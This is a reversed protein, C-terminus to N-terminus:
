GISWGMVDFMKASEIRSGRSYIIAWPASSKIFGAFTVIFGTRGGTNSAASRDQVLDCREGAKRLAKCCLILAERVLHMDPPGLGEAGAPPSCFVSTHAGFVLIATPITNM